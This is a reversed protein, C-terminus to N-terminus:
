RPAGIPSWASRARPTWWAGVEPGVGYAAGMAAVFGDLDGAEFADAGDQWAVGDVPLPAERLQAASVKLARPALAAGASRWLLWATVAPSALAAALRSLEGAPALVVVTPVSAVLSGDRDIAVEVVNTQTAVLLKPVATREVWQAARGELSLVDVVPRQWTRGGVRAARDGWAVGGLDVLGTTVLPRGDPRAAEEHVHDVMGYYEGRFGATVTAVDGLRRRSDLTVAPVGHAEALHASWTGDRQGSRAGIRVIPVCVDVAAEFAPPPLWVDVVAGLGGVAERVGKADRAGLVSLPQLLAVTGGPRAGRCAELLFLAAADTYAGAAGEFRARRQRAGEGTPRTSSSLPTLFPPNGIVVDLPPWPLGDHLADGVRCQDPPPCTGAWLALAAETTAVALPDIDVAWLRQVVDSPSEGHAAALHRAAALLLAGGGCAPDGVSPRTHFALARAALERALAAPTFHAGLRRRDGAEISRELRAGLEEPEGDVPPVAPRGGALRWLALDDPLEVGRAGAIESARTAM